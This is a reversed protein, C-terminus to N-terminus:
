NPKRLSRKRLSRAQDPKAEYVRIGGSALHVIFDATYYSTGGPPAYRQRAQDRGRPVAPNGHGIRGQPESPEVARRIDLVRVVLQESPSKVPHGVRANSAASSPLSKGFDARGAHAKGTM